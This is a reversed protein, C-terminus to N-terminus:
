STMKGQMSIFHTLPHHQWVSACVNKHLIKIEKKGDEVAFSSCRGCRGCSGKSSLHSINLMLVCARWTQSWLDLVKLDWEDTDKPWFNGFSASQTQATPGEGSPEGHLQDWRAAAARVVSHSRQRTNGGCGRCDKDRASEFSLVSTVMMMLARPLLVDRVVTSMLPFPMPSMPAFISALASCILVLSLYAPRARPGSSHISTWLFTQFLTQGLLWQPAPQTRTLGWNGLRGAPSCFRCSWTQKWFISSPTGLNLCDNRWVATKFTEVVLCVRSLVMATEWKVAANVASQHTPFPLPCCLLPKPASSPLSSSYCSPSGQVQNHAWRRIKGEWEQSM